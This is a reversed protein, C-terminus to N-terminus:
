FACFLLFKTRSKSELRHVEDIVIESSKIVEDIEIENIEKEQACNAGM